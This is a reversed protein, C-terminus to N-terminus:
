THNSLYISFLYLNILTYWELPIEYQLLWRKGYSQYTTRKRTVAAGADKSGSTEVLLKRRRRWGYTDRQTRWGLKQELVVTGWARRTRSLDSLRFEEPGVWSSRRDGGSNPSESDVRCCCGRGGIHTRTEEELSRGLNLGLLTLSLSWLFPLYSFCTKRLGVLRARTWLPNLDEAKLSVMGKDSVPPGLTWRAWM